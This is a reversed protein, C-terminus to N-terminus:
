FAAITAPARESRSLARLVAVPGHRHVALRSLLALVPDLVRAPLPPTALGVSVALDDCHVTIELMRTVLFDDLTLAWPGWPLHVVRDPSEAPLAERLRDLTADVRATLASVGDAAERDSDRRVRVNNEHDLDGTVWQSRTYHAFLPIPPESPAQDALRQSVQLVQRGLHAALGGVSLRALASPADWADAVAPEHLLAAAVAAAELYAARTAESGSEDAM